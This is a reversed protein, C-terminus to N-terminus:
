WGRAHYDFDAPEDAEKKWEPKEGMKKLDISTHRRKLAELNQRELESQNMLSKQVSQSMESALMSHRVVDSPLISGYVPEHTAVAVPTASLVTAPTPGVGPFRSLDAVSNNKSPRKNDKEGASKASKVGLSRAVSANDRAIDEGDSNLGGNEVIYNAESLNTYTNVRKAQGSFMSGLKSSVSNSEDPIMGKSFIRSKDKSQQIQEQLRDPNNLFMSSLLSPRVLNHGSLNEERSFTPEENASSGDSEVSDWDSDDDDDNYYDDYKTSDLKPPSQVSVHKKVSKDVSKEVSRDVLSSKSAAHGSQGSLRPEMKLPSFSCDSKTVSEGFGDSESPSSEIFFMKQKQRPVQQYQSSATISTGNVSSGNVGASVIGAGSGAAGHQKMESSRGLFSVSTKSPSFGRVISTSTDSRRLNGGSVSGSGSLERAVGRAGEDAEMDDDNDTEDTFDSEDDEYSDSDAVASASSQPLAAASSGSGSSVSTNRRFLSSVKPQQQQATRPAVLVPKERNFSDRHRSSSRRSRAFFTPALTSKIHANSSTNSTVDKSLTDKDKHGVGAGTGTSVERAATAAGTAAEKKGEEKTLVERPLMVHTTDNTSGGGVHVHSGVSNSSESLEDHEDGHDDDGEREEEERQKRREDRLSQWYEVEQGVPRFLQMLEHLKAPSLRKRKMSPRKRYLSRYDSISKNGRRITPRSNTDNSNVLTRLTPPSSIRSVAPTATTTSLTPTSASSALNSRNTNSRTSHLSSLASRHQNDVHTSATSTTSVRRSALEGIADGDFDSDSIADSSLSSSLQPPSVGRDHRDNRDQSADHRHQEEANSVSLASLSKLLDDPPPKQPHLTHRTQVSNNPTALASPHTNTNANTTATTNVGTNNGTNGDDTMDEVLFISNDCCYLLERNWLRWSLNELRRGNELSEACKSFVTWLSALSEPNWADIKGMPNSALSLIPTTPTM